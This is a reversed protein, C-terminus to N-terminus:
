CYHDRIQAHGRSQQQPDPEDADLLIIPGTRDQKGGVGDEIAQESPTRGSDRIHDAGDIEPVHPPAVAVVVIILRFATATSEDAPECPEGRLDGDADPWGSPNCSPYTAR